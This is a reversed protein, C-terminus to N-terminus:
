KLILKEVVREHPQTLFDRLFRDFMKWRYQFEKTEMGTWRVESAVAAEVEAIAKALRKESLRDAVILIDTQAKPNNTFVGSIAILRPRGFGRLMDVLDGHSVPASRTALVRVEELFPFTSSVRIRPNKGKKLTEAIGMAALREAERRVHPLPSGTRAALDKLSFSAGPERFLARLMRAM